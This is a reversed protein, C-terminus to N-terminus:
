KGTNSFWSFHILFICIKIINMDSFKSLAFSDFPGSFDFQNRSESKLYKGLVKRLVPLEVAM